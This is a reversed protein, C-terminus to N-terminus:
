PLNAKLIQISMGLAGCYELWQVLTTTYFPLLQGKEGFKYRYIERILPNMYAANSSVSLKKQPFDSTDNM